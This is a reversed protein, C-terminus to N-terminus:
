CGEYFYSVWNVNHVCSDVDINTYVVLIKMADVVVENAKQELGMDPERKSLGGVSRVETRKMM